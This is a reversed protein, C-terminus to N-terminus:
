KIGRVVTPTVTNNTSPKFKGYRNNMVGVTQEGSRLMFKEATKHVVIVTYKDMQKVSTNAMTEQNGAFYFIAPISKTSDFGLYTRTGDDYAFDPSINKSDKAIKMFYEWNAPTKMEDLAKNVSKENNKKIQEARAANRANAEDIPYNFKVMFAADKVEYKLNLDFIYTNVNTKIILNTAWTETNPPNIYGDSETISLPKLYVVNNSDVVEWGQSFGVAVDIVSENDKFMITTAYGSVAVIETVDYPNYSITKMRQDYQSGKPITLANASQLFAFLFLTTALIKM